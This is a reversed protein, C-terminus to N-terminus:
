LLLKKIFDILRPKFILYTFLIFLCLLLSPLDIQLPLLAGSGAILLGVGATILASKLWRVRILKGLSLFKHPNEM